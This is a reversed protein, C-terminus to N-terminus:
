FNKTIFEELDREFDHKYIIETLAFSFETINRYDSLKERTLYERIFKGEAALSDKKPHNLYFVENKACFDMIFDPLTSARLVTIIVKDEKLIPLVFLANEALPDIEFGKAKYFEKLKKYIMIGYKDSREFTPIILAIKKPNNQSYTYSLFGTFLILLVALIKSQKATLM